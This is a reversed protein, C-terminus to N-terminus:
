SMPADITWAIIPPALEISLDGGDEGGEVGLGWGGFQARSIVGGRFFATRGLPRGGRLSDKRVRATRSPSIMCRVFSLIPATKAM